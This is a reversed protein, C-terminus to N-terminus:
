NITEIENKLKKGCFFALNEKEIKKVRVRERKLNESKRPKQEPLSLRLKRM